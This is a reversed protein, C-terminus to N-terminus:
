TTAEELIHYEVIRKKAYVSENFNAVAQELPIGRGYVTGAISQQSLIKRKFDFGNICSIENQVFVGKQGNALTVAVLPHDVNTRTHTDFFKM